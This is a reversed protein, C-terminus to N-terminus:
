KLWEIKDFQGDGTPDSNVWVEKTLSDGVIGMFSYLDDFFRGLLTCVGSERNSLATIIDAATHLSDRHDEIAAIRILSNEPVEYERTFAHNTHASVEPHTPVDLVGDAAAEVIFLDHEDLITYAQGVAHPVSRMFEVADKASPQHLAGRTVFDVPLGSLDTALNLANVIVVVGNSNMGCTALSGPYTAAVVGLDNSDRVNLVTQVGNTWAPLDMNQGASRSGPRTIAVVTCAAGGTLSWAEDLMSLGAVRYWPMGAAAATGQLEDLLDPCYKEAADWAPLDTLRHALEEASVGKANFHAAWRQWALALQPALQEGIQSGRQAGTGRATIVPRLM